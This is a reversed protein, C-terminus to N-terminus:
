AISVIEHGISRLYRVAAIMKRVEMHYNHEIGVAECFESPGFEDIAEAHLLALSHIAAVKNKSKTAKKIENAAISVLTSM